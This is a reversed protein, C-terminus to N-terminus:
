PEILLLSGDKGSDGILRSEGAGWNVSYLPTDMFAATLGLSEGADLRSVYLAQGYSYFNGDDYMSVREISVGTVNEAANLAFYNGGEDLVATVSADAPGSAISLADAGGEPSEPMYERDLKGDMDAYPLSFEAEGLAYPAITGAPAFLTLGEGTLYWKGNALSSDIFNEPLSYADADGSAALDADILGQLEDTLDAGGQTMQAPTSLNRGTRVDFTMGFGDESPHAGGSMESVTCRVSLVAGDGRMVEASVNIGYPTWGARGTEDLASYASWAAGALADLEDQSPECADNIVKSILEGADSNEVEVTVGPVTYTVLSVGERQVSRSVSDFRVTVRPSDKEALVPSQIGEAETTPLPQATTPSPTGVGCGALSITLVACLLAAFKKM